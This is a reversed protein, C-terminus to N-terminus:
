CLKRSQCLLQFINNPISFLKLSYIRMAFAADFRKSHIQHSQQHALSSSGSMMFKSVRDSDLLRLYARFKM